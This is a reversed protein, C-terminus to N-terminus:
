IVVPLGSLGSTLPIAIRGSKAVQAARSVRGATQTCLALLAKETHRM